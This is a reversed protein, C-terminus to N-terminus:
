TSTNTATSYDPTCDNPRNLEDYDYHTKLLRPDTVDTVNSNLDYFSVTKANLFATGTVTNTGTGYDAIVDIRRNLGDYDFHTKLLRPDTVDTVNSDLDYVSVTKANLFAAGTVTNTGTVFDAIVDIQRNLGDYDFHTKLLRPDTVDTVNSDLDYVSVTKANLFVAGTVTNTGTGFDAIVDIRRNLGDYDYHTKLSRSLTTDPFHTSLAPGRLM